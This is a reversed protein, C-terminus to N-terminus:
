SKVWRKAAVQVARLVDDVLVDQLCRAPKEQQSCKETNCGVVCNRGSMVSTTNWYARRFYPVSGFVIVQPVNVAAALHFLGSDNGLYLTCKSILSATQRVTLKNLYSGICQIRPGDHKGVEIIRWGAQGLAHALEIYRHWRRAEHSAWVDVAITREWSGIIPFREDKEKNTLFIEPTDDILHIGLQRAFKQPLSGHREDVPVHSPSFTPKLEETGSLRKNNAWIEPYRVGSLSIREDPSQRKIERVVPTLALEDGLNGLLNIKM